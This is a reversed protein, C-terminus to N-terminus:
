VLGEQVLEEKPVPTIMKSAIKYVLRINHKVMEELSKRVRGGDEALEYETRILCETTHTMCLSQEM